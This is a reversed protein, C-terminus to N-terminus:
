KYLTYPEPEIRYPSSTGTNVDPTAGTSVGEPEAPEAPSPAPAPAPAPAPINILDALSPAPSPSPSGGQMIYYGAGAIILIVVFLAGVAIVASM